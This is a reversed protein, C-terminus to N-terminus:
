MNLKLHMLVTMGHKLQDVGLLNGPLTDNMFIDKLVIDEMFSFRM